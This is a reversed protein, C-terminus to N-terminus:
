HGGRAAWALEADCHIWKERDETLVLAKALCYAALAPKTRHLDLIALVHPHRRNVLARPKELFRRRYGRVPRQMLDGVTRGLVFLPPDHGEGEVTGIVLERYGLDARGLAAHTRGVLDVLAPDPMPDVGVKVFAHEPQAVLERAWSHADEGLVRRVTGVISRARRAAVFRVLLRSVPDHTDGGADPGLLVATGREDLAGSLPSPASAVFARGERGIVEEIAALSVVRDHVTRLLPREALDDAVLLDDPEAALLAVLRRYRGATALTWPEAAAAAEVADLLAQHLPGDAAARVLAMAKEFNEDRMVTERSLTHELWRSKIKFTIHPYRGAHEGMVDAGISSVALALGKNYFGYVPHESYAIAIETEPHSVMRACLGTAAFPENISRLDPRAASRDEFSIETDSHACWRRLTAEAGEVLESYDSVDGPVFLTIQTGEVPGEIRTKTFSRDEHFFVEWYEGDRGTHLLVGKPRMAFVSVFGIGFKGIKTLDNEKSSAFLKTLENDIIAETMGDGYDDVHIEIVGGEDDGAHTMWVDISSSGADISNQVLERLFDLRRSFQTVLNDVAEQNLRADM